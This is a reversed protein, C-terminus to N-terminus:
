KDIINSALEKEFLSSLNAVRSNIKNEKNRREEEEYAMWDDFSKDLGYRRQFEKFERDMQEINADVQDIFEEIEMDEVKSRKKNIPFKIEKRKM